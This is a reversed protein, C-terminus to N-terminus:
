PNWKDKWRFINQIDEDTHKLIKDNAVHGDAFLENIASTHRIDSYSAATAATTIEYLIGPVTVGKGDILIAFASAQTCKSIRHPAYLPYTPYGWTPNYFGLYNSYMYNSLPKGSTYAYIQDKGAPCNVVPATNPGGADFNKGNIFPHILSIWCTRYGIASDWTSFYAIPMYDNYSDAYGMSGLFLQKMNNACSIRTGQARANKLAPLLLGALIAIIAIVILLEILTFFVKARHKNM